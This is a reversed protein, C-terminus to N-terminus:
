FLSFKNGKGTKNTFSYWVYIMIDYGLPCMDMSVSLRSWQRYSSLNLCSVSLWVKFCKPETTLSILCICFYCRLISVLCIIISFHFPLLIYISYVIVFGCMVLLLVTVIPQRCSYVHEWGAILEVHHFASFKEQLSKLLIPNEM